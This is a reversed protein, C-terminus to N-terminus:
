PSQVESGTSYMDCVYLLPVALSHPFCTLFSFM